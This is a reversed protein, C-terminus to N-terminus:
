LIVQVMQDMQSSKKALDILKMTQCADELSVRPKENYVVCNVFHEIEKIYLDRSSELGSQYPDQIEKQSHNFTQIRDKRLDWTLTGKEGKIELSRHPLQDVMNQFISVSLGSSYYFSTSAIDEVDIELNSIRGSICCLSNPVGFVNKIYDFEHSLELLVGGGFSRQASVSNRYDQPRWWPLFHGVSAKAYVVRGLM